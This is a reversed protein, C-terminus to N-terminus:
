KAPRFRPNVNSPAPTKRTQPSPESPTLDQMPMKFVPVGEISGSQEIAKAAERAALHPPVPAIRKAREAMLRRNEAEIVDPDSTDVL